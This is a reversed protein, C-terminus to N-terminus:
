HRGAPMTGTAEYHAWADRLLPMDRRTGHLVASYVSAYRRAFEPGDLPAEGRAMREDNRGWAYVVSLKRQLEVEAKREAIVQTVVHTM